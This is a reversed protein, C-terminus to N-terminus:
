NSERLEEGSFNEVAKIMHRYPALNEYLIDEMDGQMEAFDLTALDHLLEAGYSMFNTATNAVPIELFFKRANYASLASEKGKSFYDLIWSTVGGIIPIAASPGFIFEGVLQWALRKALEEREDEDFFGGLIIGQFVADLMEFMLPSLVHNIAVTALLKRGAGEEGRLYAALAKAEYQVMHIPTTRFTSLLRAWSSSRVLHHRNHVDGSQQTRGVLGFAETAAYERAKLEDMGSKVYDAYKLRFVGVLFPRAVLEDAKTQVAMGYRYARALRSSRNKAVTTVMDPNYGVQYRTKYEPTTKLYEWEWGDNAFFERMAEKTGKWGIENAFTAIGSFQKIAVGLNLSMATLTTWQAVKALAQASERDSTEVGILADLLNSQLRRLYENGKSNKIAKILTPDGFIDNIIIGLEGYALMHAYENIRSQVMDLASVSEDFDLANRRRPEMSAYFNSYVRVKGALGRRPVNMKVPYYSETTGITRGTIRKFCAQLEPFTDGFFKSMHAVWEIDKESLYETLKKFAEGDRQWLRTNEAYDEQIISAYLQIAQGRTLRTRQAVFVSADKGKEKKEEQTLKVRNTLIENLDEPILESHAKVCEAHSGYCANDIEEIKENYEMLKTHKVAAAHDFARVISNIAEEAQLRVQPDLKGAVLGSMLLKQMAVVKNELWQAVKEGRKTANDGGFKTQSELCAQLIPRLISQVKNAYAERKEALDDKGTEVMEEIKSALTEIEGLTKDRWGGFEDAVYIQMDAKMLDRWSTNAYDENENAEDKVYRMRLNVANERYKRLKTPGMKLVNRIERLVVELDGTVKRDLDERNTSFRGREIGKKLAKNMRTYLEAKTERIRGLSIHTLANITFVQAQHATKASALHKLARTAFDRKSSYCLKKSLKDVMLSATLAFERVFNPDRLLAKMEKFSPAHGLTHEATLYQLMSVFEKISMPDDIDYAIGKFLEAKIKELTEEEVAEDEQLEDTSPTEQSAEQPAEEKNREAAEARAKEYERMAERLAKRRAELEDLHEPTVIDAETDVGDLVAIVEKDRENRAQELKENRVEIEEETLARDNALVITELPDFGNEAIIVNPTIGSLSELEQKAEKAAQLVERSVGQTWRLSADQVGRSYAQLEENSMKGLGNMYSELTSKSPENVYTQIRKMSATLTEDKPPTIGLDRYIRNLMGASPKKNKSARAKDAVIREIFERTILVDADPSRGHYLSGISLRTGADKAKQKAKELKKREREVRAAEASIYAPSLKEKSADVKEAFYNKCAQLIIRFRNDYIEDFASEWFNILSSGQLHDGLKLSEAKIKAVVKQDYYPVKDGHVVVDSMVLYVDDGVGIFVFGYEFSEFMRRNHRRTQEENPSAVFFTAHKAIDKASSLALMDIRNAIGHRQFEEAFLGNILIDGIDDNEVTTSIEAVRNEVFKRLASKEDATYRINKDGIVIGEPLPNGDVAIIPSNILKNISDELARRFIVTNRGDKTKPNQTDIKTTYIGNTTGINSRIEASTVSFRTDEVEDAAMNLAALRSTVNGAEYEFMKVGRRNLIERTEDSANNPIIAAAVEDFGVGRMPKAEFYKTPFKAIGDMLEKFDSILEDDATRGYGNLERKLGAITGKSDAWADLLSDDSERVATYPNSDRYKWTKSYRESIESFAQIFGDRIADMEEKPLEKLLAENKIVDKLSKLKAATLGFPNAGLFGEGQARQKSLMVKVVNALTVPDHLADWSRRKGSSTYYGKDNRIGRALIPDGYQEDLWAEFAPDHNPVREDIARKTAYEDVTQADAEGKAIAKRLKAVADTLDIVDAFGLPNKKFLNGVVEEKTFEAVDPNKAIRSDYAADIFAAEIEGRRQEIWDMREAGSISHFEMLMDGITENIIRLGDEGLSLVRSNSRGLFTRPTMVPEITEGKAILYAAKLAANTSYADGATNSSNFKEQIGDEYLLRYTENHGIAKRVNEPLTKLLRESVDVIHKINPKNVIGPFTPTWADRSYIKNWRSAKPDFASTRMLLSIDGFENHGMSDKTIAISPMAFGGLADAGKLGEASMNHLGVLDPRRTAISFRTDDNYPNFRQSLPIFNGNDDFTFPDASKNTFGIEELKGGVRTLVSLVTADSILREGPDYGSGEDWGAVLYVYQGFYANGKIATLIEDATAEIDESVDVGLTSTGDLEGADFLSSDHEFMPYIENGDEDYEQDQFLEHSNPFMSDPVLLRDDVRIGFNVFPHDDAYQSAIRAFLLAAEDHSITHASAYEDFLPMVLQQAEELATEDGAKYRDYLDRHEIDTGISFRIDPNAGDFTGINDTASKIQTPSKVNYTNFLYGNANFDNFKVGDISSSNYVGEMFENGNFWEDGEVNIENMNRINLFVPYQYEGWESTANNKDAFWIGTDAANFKTIEAVPSSHYVVLPEGNEDVVKSVNEPNVNAFFHALKLDTFPTSTALNKGPLIEAGENYVEVSSVTAAHVGSNSGFDERVTFHVYVDGKSTHAKNIYHHVAAINNHRGDDKESWARRSSEFLKNLAGSVLGVKKMKGASATPFVVNRGDNINVVNGWSKFATKLANKDILVPIDSVDTTALTLIDEIDVVNYWGSKIALAEWDGFWKKFSPTRVQVWQRETLNTPKGNPAKLWGEKKTGDPNTYRAVVEDYERQAEEASVSYRQEGDVWKHDVRINDDRFSVYNWGGSGKGGSRANVPYKVGDIDARALFESAAKPAEFNPDIKLKEVLVDQLAYYFQEGSKSEDLVERMWEEGEGFTFEKNLQAMVWKRQEDTVEGRWLLLHSEDGEARNTFFTQEYIHESPLVREIKQDEIAYEKLINAITEYYEKLSAKSTKAADALLDQIMADKTDYQHGFDLLFRHAKVIDVLKYQPIRVKKGDTREFSKAVSEDNDWDGKRYEYPIGNILIRKKADDFPKKKRNKDMKAYWDAVGINNSGYLGWGYVQAGEGTGIYHLSPGNVITGDELRHAYDAAAGTYIGSISFRTHGQKSTDLVYTKGDLNVATNEDVFLPIYGKPDFDAALHEHDPVITFSGDKHKKVTTKTHGFFQDSAHEHNVIADANGGKVVLYAEGKKNKKVKIDVVNDRTENADAKKYQPTKSDLVDTAHELLDDYHDAADDSNLIQDLLKKVEAMFATRDELSATPEKANSFQDITSKARTVLENKAGEQIASQTGFAEELEAKRAEYNARQVEVEDVAEKANALLDVMYSASTSAETPTVDSDYVNIAMRVGDETRGMVVNGGFVINGIMNSFREIWGRVGKHQTKAGAAREARSILYGLERELAYATEDEDFEESEVQAKPLLLQLTEKEEKSILGSDRVIRAIAHLTEHVVSKYSSRFTSADNWNLLIVGAAPIYETRKTGDENEVQIAITAPTKANFEGRKGLKNEGIFKKRFDADEWKKAFEEFSMGNLEPSDKMSAYISTAVNRSPNDINEVDDTIQHNDDIAIPIIREGIHIGIGKLDRNGDSWTIDTVDVNEGFVTKLATKLFTKGEETSAFERASSLTTDILKAAAEKSYREALTDQAKFKRHVAEAVSHSLGLKKLANIREKNNPQAAWTKRANAFQTEGWTVGNTKAGTIARTADLKTRLLSRTRAINYTPRLSGAFRAIGVSFLMTGFVDVGEKLGARLSDILMEKANSEGDVYTSDTIYKGINLAIDDITKQVGEEVCETLTDTLHIAAGGGVVGAVAWANRKLFGDAVNGVLTKITRAGFVKRASASLIGYQLREVAFQGLASASATVMAVNNDVGNAIMTDYSEAYYMGLLSSSVATGGVPGTLSGAILAGWIPVQEIAGLAAELFWGYNEYTMPESALSLAISNRHQRQAEESIDLQLDRLQAFRKVRNPRIDANIMRSAADITGGAVRKTMNMFRTGADAWWQESTVGGRAEAMMQLVLAVQGDSEASVYDLLQATSWDKTMTDQLGSTEGIYRLSQFISSINASPGGLTTTNVYKKFAQTGEGRDLQFAANEELTIERGGYEVVKDDGSILARRILEQDAVSLMGADSLAKWRNMFSVQKSLREQVAQSTTEAEADGEQAPAQFPVEEGYPSTVGPVRGGAELTNNYRVDFDTQNFAEGKEQQEVERAKFYDDAEKTNGSEKGDVMDIMYQLAERGSTFDETAKGPRMGKLRAIGTASPYIKEAIKLAANYMMGDDVNSGDQASLLLARSNQITNYTGREDDSMADYKMKFDHLAQNRTALDEESQNWADTRYGLAM